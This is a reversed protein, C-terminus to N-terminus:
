RRAARASSRGIAVNVAGRSPAFRRQPQHGLKWASGDGEEERVDFARSPQEPGQAITVLLHEGLVAAQKALSEVPVAPELDVRLAVREEDDELARLVRDGCRGIRLPRERVERPRVTSLDLHPHAQM